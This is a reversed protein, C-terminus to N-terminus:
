ARARVCVCVCVKNDMSASLLLHGTKPFWRIAHVGATHGTWTHVCNKPIYSQRVPSPAPIHPDSTLLDRKRPYLARQQDKLDSKVSAACVCM